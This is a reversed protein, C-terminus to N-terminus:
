VASCWCHHRWGDVGTSNSKLGCRKLGVLRETQSKISEYLQTGHPLCAGRTSIHTTNLFPSIKGRLPRRFLVLLNRLRKSLFAVVVVTHCPPTIHGAVNMGEQLQNNELLLM